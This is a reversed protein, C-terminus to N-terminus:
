PALVLLAGVACAAAATGYATALLRRPAWGLRLLTLSLHQDNGLLPSRGSRLRSSVTFAMEALPLLLLLGAAPIAREPAGGVSRLIGFVLLAGITFSGVDGMFMRAPPMNHALFGALSAALGFAVLALAADGLQLALCGLSLATVCAVGGALGDSVDLFNWANILVVTAVLVLAAGAGLSIGLGAVLLAAAGFQVILQLAPAVPRRVRDKYLGLAALLSMGMALWCVGADQGAALILCPLLALGFAVGGLLPVDRDHTPVEPNPADIFGWSSARRRLAIALAWSSVGAIAILSLGLGTM